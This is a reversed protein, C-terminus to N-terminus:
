TKIKTELTVRQLNRIRVVTTDKDVTEEPIPEQRTVNLVPYYRERILENKSFRGSIDFLIEWTSKYIKYGAQSTPNRLRPIYNRKELLFEVLGNEGTQIIGFVEDDDANVKPNEGLDFRRNDSEILFKKKELNYFEDREVLYMEVLKISIGTFDNETDLNIIRIGARTVPPIRPYEWIEIELKQGKSVASIENSFRVLVLKTIITLVLLAIPSFLLTLVGLWHNAQYAAYAAALLLVTYLSAYLSLIDGTGIERLTKSIRKLLKDMDDYKNYKYGENKNFM